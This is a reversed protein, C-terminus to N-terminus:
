QWLNREILDKRWKLRGAFQSQKKLDGKRFKIRFRSRQVRFWLIPKSQSQKKDVEVRYFKRLDNSKHPNRWKCRVFIPKTKEFQTHVVFFEFIWLAAEPKARPRLWVDFTPEQSDPSNNKAEAKRKVAETEQSPPSFRVVAFFLLGFTGKQFFDWLM